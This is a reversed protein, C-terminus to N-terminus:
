MHLVERFTPLISIFWPRRASVSSNTIFLWGVSKVTFAFRGFWQPLQCIKVLNVSFLLLRGCVLRRRSSYKAVAMLDVCLPEVQTIILYNTKYELQAKTRCERPLRKSEISELQPFGKCTECSLGSGVLKTYPRVGWEVRVECDSLLFVM